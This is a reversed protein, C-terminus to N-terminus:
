FNIIIQWFNTLFFVFLFILEKLGCCYILLAFDRFPSLGSNLGIETM